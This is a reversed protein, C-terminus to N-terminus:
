NYNFVFSVRSVYAEKVSLNPVGSPLKFDDYKTSFINEGTTPSRVRFEEVNSIVTSESSVEITASRKRGDEVGAKM